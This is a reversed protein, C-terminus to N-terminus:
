NRLFISREQYQAIRLLRNWMVQNYYKHLKCKGFTGNYMNLRCSAENSHFIRYMYSAMLEYFM